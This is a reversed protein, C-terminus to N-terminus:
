LVWKGACLWTRVICVAHPSLDRVVYCACNILHIPLMSRANNYQTEPECYTEWQYYPNTNPSLKCGGSEPIVGELLHFGVGDKLKSNMTLCCSNTYM